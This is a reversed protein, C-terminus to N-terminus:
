NAIAKDFVNKLLYNRHTISYKGSITEQRAQNSLKERLSANEILLGVADAFRNVFECDVENLSSRFTGTYDATNPIFGRLYYPVKTSRPVILGTKGHEVYNPNEWVDSAVVPLGYGMAEILVSSSQHAPFVFIDSQAYLPELQSKPTITEDVIVNPQKLINSYKVAVDPPVYQKMILRLNGYRKCLLAFGELVEKGGKTHFAYESSKRAAESNPGLFNATGIFLLTVTDRNRRDFYPKPRVAIPVTAIKHAFGSCDLNLLLTQRGAEFLTIVSKCERSSLVKEIFRKYRPLNLVDYMVPCLDGVHEIAVVWPRKQILLSSASFTLSINEPTAPLLKRFYFGARYVGLFALSRLASGKPISVLFRSGVARIGGREEAVRVSETPVRTRESVVFVYGDPPCDLLDYYLSHVQEGARFYVRRQQPKM